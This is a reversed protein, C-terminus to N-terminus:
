SIAVDGPNFNNTGPTGIQTWTTGQNTSLNLFDTGFLVDGSSDLAYPAVFNVIPNGGPTTAIIGTAVPKFSNLAGSTKSINLSIVPQNNIAQPNSLEQYVTNPNTPDVRTLGGDGGIVQAWSTTGTFEDTGNDQAGGFITNLNAQDLAIGYFQTI